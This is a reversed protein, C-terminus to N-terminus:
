RLSLKYWVKILPAFCATTPYGPSSVPHNQREYWQTLLRPSPGFPRCPFPTPFAHHCLHRHVHVHVHEKNSSSLVPLPRCCPASPVLYHRHRGLADVIGHRNLEAMERGLPQLERGCGMVVTATGIEGKGRYSSLGNPPRCRSETENM